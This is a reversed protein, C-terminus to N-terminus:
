PLFGRKKPQILKNIGFRNLLSQLAMYAFVGLTCLPLLMILFDLQFGRNIVSQEPKRPNYYCPVTPNTRLYQLDQKVSRYSSRLIGKFDYRNGSFSGYDTRYRYSASIKFSISVSTSGAETKERRGSYVQDIECHTQEWTKANLWLVTDRAGTFYMIVAFAVIILLSSFVGWLWDLIGRVRQVLQKISDVHADTNM